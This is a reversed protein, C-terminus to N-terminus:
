AAVLAMAVWNDKEVQQQQIFGHQAASALIVPIDSTLIGSLLLTGGPQLLRRMAGMFGLLINRNINALLVEYTDNIGDLTDAQYINIHYCDNAAINERTNNVAWEDIDIADIHSAGLKEALIALIGTGTGFDFVRKGDLPLGKLLRIMSFTTAHHGTGFSMKPTIVIEHTPPPAFPPHFGARIGCFDDVLVPQFNSEWVANWNTDAMGEAQYAMGYEGLIEELAQASYNDFPIFAILEQEKEEFGEYGINVLRAILIEALEASQYITVAMYTMGAFIINGTQNKIAEM